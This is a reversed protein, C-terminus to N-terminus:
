SRGALQESAKRALLSARTLARREGFLEPARRRM